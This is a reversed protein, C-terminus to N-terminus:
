GERQATPPNSEVAAAFQRIWRLLQLTEETAQRYLAQDQNQHFSNMLQQYAASDLGRTKFRKVLWERLHQGLAHYHPEKIEGREGVKSKEQYFALTQMLGNNMILAPAAKALNTYKSRHKNLSSDTVKEWAYKSRRQDLSPRPQQQEAQNEPNTAPMDLLRAQPAPTNAQAPTQLPVAAGASRKNPTEVKSSSILSNAPNTKKNKKGM